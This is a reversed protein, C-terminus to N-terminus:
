PWRGEVFNTRERVNRKSDRCLGATAWWIRCGARLNLFAHESGHLNELGKVTQHTARNFDFTGIIISKDAQEVAIIFCGQCTAGSIEATPRWDKGSCTSWLKDRTFKNVTLTRTEPWSLVDGAIRQFTCLTADFPLAPVVPEADPQVVPPIVIDPITNTVVDRVPDVPIVPLSNCGSVAAILLLMVFYRPNM